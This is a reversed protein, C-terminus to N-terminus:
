QPITDSALLAVVVCVLFHGGYYFSGPQEMLSPFGGAMLCKWNCLNWCPQSGNGGGSVGKRCRSSWSASVCRPELAYIWVAAKDRPLNPWARSLFILCPCSDAWLVLEAGESHTTHRSAPHSGKM